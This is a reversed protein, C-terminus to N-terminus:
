HLMAGVNAQISPNSATGTITLPIGSSQATGVTSQLLQGFIGGVQKSAQTALKGVGSSASLKANMKFNLAGAPSVSGNGTATGIAPVVAEINSFQTTQPSSNVVASVKQIATANASGGFPNLGQIKSGLNFGSLTTNDVEVPGAITSETAPGTIALTANLTGGQLTSGSPLRVGVAPLLPVLQDVPLNPAALHLDLVVAQPTMRYGGTVHVTVNGTHVAIDNVKGTRAELNQAVNYDVNVPNTAPTGTRALLLHEAEVKGTSSLTAGDSAIQADANVVMSIGKGADIAGAAVPDFHKLQITARFPTDAADQRSLPGGSGDLHFTGNAPLNASLQFPFNRVLSMEKASFAIGSYVIPKGTAPLSSVTARGDSIKLEGVSLDPVTSGSNKSTSTSAGGLSSFNWKGSEGHILQITPSDITLRTVELQRHFLLPAVQIGVHLSKAQIFPATSYAADDAIAINDAVLSGSFLSFSLNGLTVRRGLASSLRGEIQPRFSNANVFLPALLLLLIVAAAIALAVKVIPKRFISIPTKHPDGPRTASNELRAM